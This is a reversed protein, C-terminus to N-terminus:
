RKPRWIRGMAEDDFDSFEDAPGEIKVRIGLAESRARLAESALIGPQGNDRAILLFRTGAPPTWRRMNEISLLAGAPLGFKHSARLVSFVGEGVLIDEGPEDLWVQHPSKLPGISKRPLKVRDETQRSGDPKLYTIELGIHKREANTIQALMAPMQFRSSPKSLAVNLHPHHRCWPLTGVAPAKRHAFLYRETLTYRWDYAQGWLPEVLAKLTSVSPPAQYGAGAGAGQGTLIGQDDIFGDERLLDKVERYDTKSFSKVIVRMTKPDVKLSVSRDDKSHGPGRINASWGGHITKGGYKKVIEHLPM